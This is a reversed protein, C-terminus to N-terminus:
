KIFGSWTLHFRCGAARRGDARAADRRGVGPCRRRRRRRRRCSVRGAAGGLQCGASGDGEGEGGLLLLRARRQGLRGHELLPVLLVRPFGLHPPTLPTTAQCCRQKERACVSNLAPGRHEDKQLNMHTNHQMPTFIVNFIISM